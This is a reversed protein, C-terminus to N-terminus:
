YGCEDIVGYKIDPKVHHTAKAELTLFPGDWDDWAEDDTRRAPGCALCMNCRVQIACEETTLIDAAEVDESGCFHCTRKVTKM